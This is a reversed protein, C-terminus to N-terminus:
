DRRDEEGEVQDFIKKGMGVTAKLYKSFVRVHAKDSSPYPENALATTIPKRLRLKRSKVVERNFGLWDLIEDHTM